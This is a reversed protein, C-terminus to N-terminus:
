SIAEVPIEGSDMGLMANILKCSEFERFNTENIDAEVIQRSKLLSQRMVGNLLYSQPTFWRVGKKFVINSYSCDTILGSKVILIEDANEKQNLLAELQSRDLFKHKYTIEDHHLLKLAKVPKVKYPIFEISNIVRDYTVRVKFLGSLPIIENAFSNILEPSNIGFLEVSSRNMRAQHYDLNRFKGNNLYISELLQCM